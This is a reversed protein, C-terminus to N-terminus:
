EPTFIEPLLLSDANTLEIKQYGSNIVNVSLTIQEDVYNTKNVRDKYCRVTLTFDIKGIRKGSKGFYHVGLRGINQAEYKSSFEVSQFPQIVEYGGNLYPKKMRLYFKGILNNNYLVNYIRINYTDDTINSTLEITLSNRNIIVNDRTSIKSLELSYFYVPISEKNLIYFNADDYESYSKDQETASVGYANIYFESSPIMFDLTPMVRTVLKYLNTAM